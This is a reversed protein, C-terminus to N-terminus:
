DFGNMVRGSAVASWVLRTGNNKPNKGKRLIGLIERNTVKGFIMITNEDGQLSISDPYERIGM